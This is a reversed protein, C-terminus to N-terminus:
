DLLAAVIGHRQEADKSDTLSHVLEKTTVAGCKLLEKVMAEGEQVNSHFAALALASSGEKNTANPSAGAELAEVVANVSGKAVSDLLVAHADVKLGLYTPLRGISPIIMERVDSREIMQELLPLRYVLQKKIKTYYERQKEIPTNSTLKKLIGICEQLPLINKAVLLLVIPQRMQALAYILAEKLEDQSAGQKMHMELQEFNGFIVALIVPQDAFIKTLQAVTKENKRNFLAGVKILEKVVHHRQMNLALTLPFAPKLTKFNVQAGHKLLLQVIVLRGRGAACHLPTWGTSDTANVSAGKNTLLQAMGEFGQQAALHLPTVHGTGNWNIAAANVNAGHEILLKGINWSCLYSAWHLPTVGKYDKDDWPFTTNVYAGQELLERVQDVEESKVAEVLLQDWITCNSNDNLMLIQKNADQETETRQKKLPSEEMGYLSMTIGVALFIDRYRKNDM